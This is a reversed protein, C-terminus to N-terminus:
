AGAAGAGRLSVLVRSQQERPKLMECGMGRAFWGQLASGAWWFSCCRVTPRQPFPAATSAGWGSGHAGAPLVSCRDRCSPACPWVMRVLWAVRKQPRLHHSGGYTGLGCGGLSVHLVPPGGPLGRVRVWASHSEPPLPPQLCAFARTRATVGCSTLTVLQLKDGPLVDGLGGGRCTADGWERGDGKEGSSGDPTVFGTM